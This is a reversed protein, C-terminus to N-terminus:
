WRRGEGDRLGYADIRDVISIKVKKGAAWIWLWTAIVWLLLALGLASLRPSQMSYLLIACGSLYADVGLGRAINAMTIHKTLRSLIM